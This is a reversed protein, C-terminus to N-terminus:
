CAKHFSTIAGRIARYYKVLGNQNFHVGDSYVPQASNKIGKVKWYRIHNHKALEKKLKMNALRVHENYKSVTTRRTRSRFFLQVVCVDQLHYRTRWMTCLSIIGSIIEELKDADLQNGSDLDNGGIQLILQNPRNNVIARELRSIHSTNSLQGGNVGFLRVSHENNLDFSRLGSRNIYRDLHNIHSSGIILTKM